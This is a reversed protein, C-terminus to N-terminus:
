DGGNIVAQEFYRQLTDSRRHPESLEFLDHNLQKTHCGYFDPCLLRLSVFTAIDRESTLQLNRAEDVLTNIFNTLDTEVQAPFQDPFQDPFAAQISLM